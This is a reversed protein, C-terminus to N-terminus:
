NITIKDGLQTQTAEIRGAALEIACTSKWFIPSFQFPKIGSVLGVIKNNKDIFIVDIAFKMFLMHISQCHPIVLAQQPLLSARGLLGRARKFATGAVEAQVAIITDQTINKIM